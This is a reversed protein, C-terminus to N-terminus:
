LDGMQQDLVTKTLSGELLRSRRRPTEGAQLQLLSLTEARVLGRALTSRALSRAIATGIAKTYIDGGRPGRRRAGASGPRQRPPM